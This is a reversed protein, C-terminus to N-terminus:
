GVMVEKVKGALQKLSFPKPLFHIDSEDGLRKRFADEAYGSIFIVKMEPHLERVEKALTPGDMHPMVVDTVLLDIKEADGKIVELASEGSKAEIVRYGKNRLARASFLRVPDEDEVLLVTGAGTLDRPERAEAAEAKVAAAAEAAAGQHRPLFISFNAGKGPASDVFIFGGTQKVIGYVTSLGLGTGSGAEKTSFFPEFIRELNAKPIGIGTDAVDIEVYNGPPMVEQGARIPMEPTVNATRIVLTGGQPMADRANVALNIIVQDLQGQDVKVLGLDRAHIVQLEINEGILRRLLHSLEALVDTINLVRPQLTQQRSFALLQRVLNAARKANQEIQKIDAFSPDGAPFRLLLLDCFGIIATLLNNFDHAVGGALQGVAQMKQSQAFQAQLSKQETIDIFHLLIGGDGGDGAGLRSMFVSAQKGRAGPMRLEMPAVAAGGAVAALKATVQAGEEADLLSALPKGTLNEPAGGFLEGLARNAELIRGDRDLLAIGVPADAFFRQRSLRVAEQGEGEVALDRLVSRTRIQEGSRVVSQMVLAKIIRGQRSKLTMTGREEGSEGDFPAYPPVIQPLPRTLFDALRAGSEVLSDAKAGLWEAMTENVYLFRGGGDVSYFGLPAHELFDAFRRQEERDAHELVHRGTIDEFSWLSYGPRGALQHASVGFWQVGGDPRATALRGSAFGREDAERALRAFEADGGDVLALRRGIAALPPGDLAPFFRHFIRNAHAASGDPAIVLHGQESSELVEGVRRLKGALAAHMRRAALAAIGSILAMAALVAGDTRGALGAVADILLLGTCLFAAAALGASLVGLSRMRNPLKGAPLAAIAASVTATDGNRDHDYPMGM